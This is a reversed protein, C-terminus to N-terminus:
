PTFTPPTVTTQGAIIRGLNALAPNGQDWYSSHAAVSPLGLPGPPGAAAEFPIGGFQRAMPDPGLTAYTAVGIVDNEARSAFVHAGTELSLESAHQALMGPSGVAVVNDAALHNGGTAAGGVLTSGYSHGIVTDIAAPGAHSAHMGNLYTDLAAGGNIARGPSAAELLNMPRDYGMWTTVAVDTKSLSRDAQLTANFMKESKANSGGFTATDQGTGPVFVATRKATDPNGISVAAHGQDDIFSLFRPVGDSSGLSEEVARYGDHSHNASDWKAKWEKFDEPPIRWATNKGDAWDPHAARLRALEADNQQQLEDLHMRNYSDRDVFPMGGHNGIFHDQEYQERKEESSLESWRDRFNNPDPDLPDDPGTGTPLFDVAQVTRKVGQPAEDFRADALPAMASAINAAVEHDALSLAAARTHIEAAFRKAQALRAAFAAAPWLRSEDSVSLDEGVTFGAARAEEIAVLAMRKRYDLQDAGRRAIGAAETLSDSIGRVKVLDAFTREQAAEAARGEWVTGGPRLSGQHVAAFSNEWVTATAEWSRAASELHETDWSQIKSLGPVGAAGVGPM